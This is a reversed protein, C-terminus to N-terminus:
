FRPIVHYLDDSAERISKKENDTFYDKIIKMKEETVVIRQDENTKGKETVGRTEGFWPVLQFFASVDRRRRTTKM